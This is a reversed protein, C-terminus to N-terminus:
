ICVFKPEGAYHCTADSLRVEFVVSSSAFSVARLEDFGLVLGKSCLNAAIRLLIQHNRLVQVM